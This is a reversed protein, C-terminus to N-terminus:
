KTCRTISFAPASGGGVTFGRMPELARAQECVDEDDANDACFQSLPMISTQMTQHDLILIRFDSM